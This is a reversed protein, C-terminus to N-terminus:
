FSFKGTIRRRRLFDSTWSLPPANRYAPHRLEARMRALEEEPIPPIVFLHKQNEPLKANAM